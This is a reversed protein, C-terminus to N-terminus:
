PVAQALLPPMPCRLNAAIARMLEREAVDIRGDAQIANLVM